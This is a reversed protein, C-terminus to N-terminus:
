RLTLCHESTIAKCLPSLHHQILLYQERCHPVQMEIAGQQAKERSRRQM